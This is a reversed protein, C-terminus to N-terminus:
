TILFFILFFCVKLREVVDVINQSSWDIRSDELIVNVESPVGQFYVDQQDFYDRVYSDSPLTETLALGQKLNPIQSACIIGWIIFFIVIFGKGVKHTVAPAYMERM